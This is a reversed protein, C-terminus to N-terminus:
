NFSCTDYRKSSRISEHGLELSMVFTKSGWHWRWAASTPMSPLVISPMEQLWLLSSENCQTRLSDAMSNMMSKCSKYLICDRNSRMHLKIAQGWVYVVVSKAQSPFITNFLKEEKMCKGLLLLITNVMETQQWNGGVLQHWNFLIKLIKMLGSFESLPQLIVLLPSQCSVYVNAQFLM